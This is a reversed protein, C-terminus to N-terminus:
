LPDGTTEDVAGMIYGEYIEWDVPWDQIEYLGYNKNSASVIENVKVKEMKRWLQLIVQRYISCKLM